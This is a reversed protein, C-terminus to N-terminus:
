AECIHGHVFLPLSSFNALFPSLLWHQQKVTGCGWDGEEARGSRYHPLPQHHSFSSKGESETLLGKFVIKSLKWMFFCTMM